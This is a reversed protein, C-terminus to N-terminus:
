ILSLLDHFITKFFIYVFIYLKRYLLMYIQFLSTIYITWAFVMWIITKWTILEWEIDSTTDQEEQSGMLATLATQTYFDDNRLDRNLM